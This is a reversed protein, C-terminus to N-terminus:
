SQTGFNTLSPRQAVSRRATASAVRLEDTITKPGRKKQGEGVSNYKNGVLKNYWGYVTEPSFEREIKGLTLEDVKAGALEDVKAGAQALRRKQDDTLPITKLGTREKQVEELIANRVNMYHMAAQQAKNIMKPTAKTVGKMFVRIKTVENKQIKTQRKTKRRM